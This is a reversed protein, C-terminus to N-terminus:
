ECYFLSKDDEKIFKGDTYIFSSEKDEGKICEYVKGDRVHWKSVREFNENYSSDKKNIYTCKTTTIVDKDPCERSCASLCALACLALIFRKM